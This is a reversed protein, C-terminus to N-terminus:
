DHLNLALIISSLWKLKWYTQVLRSVYDLLCAFADSRGSRLQRSYGKRYMPTSIRLLNYHEHPEHSPPPPPPPTLFVVVVATTVCSFEHWISHESSPFGVLESDLWQWVWLRQLTPTGEQLSSECSPLSGSGHPRWRICSRTRCSRSLSRVAVPWKVVGTTGGVSSCQWGDWTSTQHRYSSDTWTKEVRACVTSSRSNLQSATVVIAWMSCSRLVRATEGPGRSGSWFTKVMTRSNRAPVLHHASMNTCTSYWKSCTIHMTSQLWARVLPTM